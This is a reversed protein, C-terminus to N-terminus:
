LKKGRGGSGRNVGRFSTRCRRLGKWQGSLSKKGRKLSKKPRSGGGLVTGGGPM